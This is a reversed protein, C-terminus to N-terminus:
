RASGSPILVQPAVEDDRCKFRTVMVMCRTGLYFFPLSHRSVLPDLTLFADDGIQRNDNLEIYILLGTLMWNLRVLLVCAGM